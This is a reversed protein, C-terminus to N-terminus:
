QHTGTSDYCFFILRSQLRDETSRFSNLWQCFLWSRDDAETVVSMWHSLAKVSARLMNLSAHHLPRTTGWKHVVFTEVSWLSKIHLMRARRLQLNFWKRPSKGFTQMPVLEATTDGHWLTTRRMCTHLGSPGQPQSVHAKWTIQLPQDISRGSGKFQVKKNFIFKLNPDQPDKQVWNCQHLIKKIFHLVNTPQQVPTM